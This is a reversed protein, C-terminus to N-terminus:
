TISILICLSTFFIQIGYTMEPKSQLSFNHKDFIFFIKLEMEMIKTLLDRLITILWSRQM